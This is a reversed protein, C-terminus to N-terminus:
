IMEKPSRIQNHFMNLNPLVQTAKPFNPHCLEHYSSATGRKRSPSNAHGGIYALNGCYCLKIYNSSEDMTMIKINLIKFDSRDTTYWTTGFGPPSITAEQRGTSDFYRDRAERHWAPRRM